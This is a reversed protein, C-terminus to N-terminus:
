AGLSLSAELEQLGGEIVENTKGKEGKYPSLGKSHLADIHWGGTM